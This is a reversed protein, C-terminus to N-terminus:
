RIVVVMMRYNPIDSYVGSEVRELSMRRKQDRSLKKEKKREEVGRKRKRSTTTKIHHKAKIVGIQNRSWEWKSHSMFARTRKLGSTRLEEKMGDQHSQEVFDECYDGIGKYHVMQEVLHDELGHIKPGRMSLGLHRWMTLIAKVIRKTDNIIEDTVKGLETRALSYVGDLLFGLDRYMNITNEIENSDAITVHDEGERTAEKLIITFDQFIIDISQLLVKVKVGTLDGGHYAPRSVGYKVLTKELQIRVSGKKGRKTVYGNLEKKLEACLRKKLTLEAEIMKKRNVIVKINDTLARIMEDVERREEVTSVFKGDEDKMGRIDKLHARSERLDVLEIGENRNFEAMKEELPLMEKLMIAYDSKKDREEKTQNEIKYDVWEMFSNLFFNGIGIESHLVPYIYEKIEFCSMLMMERVGMRNASTAVIEKRDLKERLENMENLLWCRGKEHDKHKWVNHNSKCWTCWLGSANVKGLIAAYFASDGTCM